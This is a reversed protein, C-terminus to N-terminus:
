TIRERITASAYDLISVVIAIALVAVGADRYRLLNIQQNLLLGIGGGGVFGIITSMRVNIDWRYMTFAVYPPVIQPVVAYIITQLHGAGTAKLAEIPGEDITEIQESYLKGLSAISHLMLALVGAFPGIGVWIVFVIGMILPEISRLGNLINRTVNYLVSGISFPQRTGAVLGFMSGLVGGIIMGNLLYRTVEVGMLDITELSPLTGDVVTRGVRLQIFTIAFAVVATALAIIWRNIREIPSLVVKKRRAWWSAHGLIVIQQAFLAAALPTLLSLLAAGKAIEAIFGFVLVGNMAGMAGGLVHALVGEISRLAGSTLKTVSSSLIFAGILGGIPNISLEILGGVINLFNGTGNIGDVGATALWNVAGVNGAPRISDAFHVLGDGIVLSLGGLVGILFVLVLAFVLHEGVSRLRHSLSPTELLAVSRSAAVMGLGVLPFLMSLVSVELDGQFFNITERGIVSLINEGILWGIPLAIIAIMLNGTPVRVPRMLNHAAFFSLAASIPISLSTAVLAMFITEAMRRIVEDTIKSFRVPGSPIAALFEIQHIQGSSGSIRPVEIQGKFDGTSDIIIEERGTELVERPRRQGEIPAWRIAAQVGSEFNFAEIMVVDGAKGCSPTVRVYPADSSDSLAPSEGECDMLFPTSTTIIERDQDFIRPSLLERLANQVNSQRNEDQPKELDIDTVTWGYAYIGAGLTIALVILLNRLAARRSPPTHNM